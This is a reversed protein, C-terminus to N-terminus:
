AAKPGAILRAASKPPFREDDGAVARIGILSSAVFIVFTPDFVSFRKTIKAAERNMNETSRNAARM